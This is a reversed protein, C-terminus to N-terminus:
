QQGYARGAYRCQVPSVQFTVNQAEGVNGPSEVTLTLRDGSGGPGAPSSPTIATVLCRVLVQDGVIIDAGFIDSELNAM